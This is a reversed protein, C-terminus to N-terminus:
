PRAAGAYGPDRAREQCARALPPTWAREREPDGLLRHGQARGSGERTAAETYIMRATAKMLRMAGDGPDRRWRTGDWVLWTRWAFCYRVDNGHRAVFRQANGLDTLHPREVTAIGLWQKLRMVVKEGNGGLVEALRPGGTTEEGFALRRATTRVDDARAHWEEDGAIRAATTILTTTADEDLGGRLLLGALALAAQHRSGREPWHRSVLACAAVRAVARELTPAAIRAPEGEDSWALEEGSPHLSPPAITQAGTSRLECLMPGDPDEWKTTALV